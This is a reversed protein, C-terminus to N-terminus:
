ASRRMTTCIADVLFLAFIMVAGVHSASGAKDWTHQVFIGFAAIFLFRWLSM